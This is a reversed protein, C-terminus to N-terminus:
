KYLNKALEIEGARVLSAAARAKGMEIFFEVLSKYLKKM